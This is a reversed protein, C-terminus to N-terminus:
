LIGYMKIVGSAINGSSMKFDIANIASTTNFYGGFFCDIAYDSSHYNSSRSTFHKIYTTSSPEFIQLWGAGNEDAEGGYNVQFSQYDTSNAQDEGTRYGLNTSTDAEDHYANYYAVTTNVGYSSGGNTSGQFGFVADVNSPKINNFYFIYSKYTTDISSTFSTSSVASSITNTTILKMAGGSIGSDLAANNILTTGNSIVAM